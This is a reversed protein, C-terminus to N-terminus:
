FEGVGQGGGLGGGGGNYRKYKSNEQVRVAQIFVVYTNMSELASIPEGMHTGINKVVSDGGAHKVNSTGFEVVIYSGEM